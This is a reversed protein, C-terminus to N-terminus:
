DEPEAALDMEAKNPKYEKKGAEGVRVQGNMLMPLLWDRLTTLHQNEFANNIIKNYIPNTLKYYKGLIKEDPMILRTEDITQKNIHPQQAGTRLTLFRPIENKLLPYIYSNKLLESEYIGVVSQNACADIAFITPRIHRTISLAVTGKPM